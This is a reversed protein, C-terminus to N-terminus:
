QRTIILFGIWALGAIVLPVAAWFLSRKSHDLHSFMISLIVIVVFTGVVLFSAGAGGGGTASAYGSGFAALCVFAFSMGALLGSLINFLIIINM